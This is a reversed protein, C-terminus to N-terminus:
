FPPISDDDSGPAEQPDPPRDEPTARETMPDKPPSERPVQFALSVIKRGGKTQKKWGAVWYRVDGILCDGKFDPLNGTPEKEPVWLTGTMDKPIYPQGM